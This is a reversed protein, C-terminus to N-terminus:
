SHNRTPVGHAMYRVWGNVFAELCSQSSPTGHTDSERVIYAQQFCSAMDVVNLICYRTGSIDRIEIVDLGVDDNPKQELRPLGVKNHPFSTKTQDCANCRFSRAADLYEKPAKAQKLVHLLTAKPMHKFNRHLRRIAVRARRPLAMWAKKRAAEDRTAAPLPLSDLMDQEADADEVQDMGVDEEDIPPMEAIDDVTGVFAYSLDELRKEDAYATFSDALKSQDFYLAEATLPFPKSEHFLARVMKRLEDDNCNAIAFRVDGQGKEAEPM